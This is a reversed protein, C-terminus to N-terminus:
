DILIFGVVLAICGLSLILLYTQIRGNQIRRLLGGGERIGDCGADFGGNIFFNDIWQNFHSFVLTIGGIAHLIGDIVFLDFRGFFRGVAYTPRVFAAQYIEDVYYKNELLLFLRPFKVQFPDRDGAKLPVRGYILWGLTIGGGAILIALILLPLSFPHALRDPGVFHHFLNHEPFGAFGLLAAFIALISLPVTMSKPSEHPTYHTDRQEGFFVLFVQRSMYFATLFAAVTGMFWPIGNLIDIEYAHHHWASLLIEDKSFFGAFPPLGILAFTGFLYTWYTTKMSRRLGGMQFIDQEHHCGLIVSGSGLFLLAKFFAHTILHFMGAVYGGVGLALMMYGLQSITSYALIRKIDSQAVAITAAFLATIAGVWTVVLMATSVGSADKELEFIPYMRGVMFVGAAVMTAAHILASVSTPGEMADPLWVHLPVQASKGIAGIFLCIAAVNAVAATGFFPLAYSKGKLVNLVGEQLIGTGDTTYLLATGCERYLILLAILFGVDGVRTTVFAKKAANAASPKHYWFGILLYSCLGVVEWCMFLMLLNNSIVLGLMAAAFLALFCFFRTFNWDEAMYGVSYIFIMLGVFTVMGLMAATIPDVIIGFRVASAANPYWDFNRVYRFMEGDEGSPAEAAAGHDGEPARSEERSAAEPEGTHHEAASEVTQMAHVAEVGHVAGTEPPASFIAAYLVILAMLCSVGLSGIALGAAFGRREKRLLAILGSALLPLVPILWVNRIYFDLHFV